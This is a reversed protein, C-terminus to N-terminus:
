FILQAMYHISCALAAVAVSAVWVSLNLGPPGPARLLADGVTGLVGGAVLLATVSAPPVRFVLATQGSPGNHHMRDSTM